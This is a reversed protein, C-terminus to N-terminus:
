KSKNKIEVYIGVLDALRNYVPQGTNRTCLYIVGDQSYYKGAFLEMNNDYPIPDDITGAANEVIETYLSETGVGPKYHEQVKHPQLVKWLKGGYQMKEDKKVDLGIKSEWTPYLSKMSLAENDSLEMTNITIAMLKAIDSMRPIGTSVKSPEEIELDKRVMEKTTAVFQLYEEYETVISDDSIIGTQYSNYKNLMALEEDSTYNSRIVAEVCKDYTPEGHIVTEFCSFQTRETVPDESGEQMAQVTEEEIDWHYLYDGNGVAELAKPKADYYARKM